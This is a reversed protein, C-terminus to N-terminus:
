PWVVMLGSYKFCIKIIRLSQHKFKTLKYWVGQNRLPNLPKQYLSAFWFIKAIFLKDWIYKLSLFEEGVGCVYM